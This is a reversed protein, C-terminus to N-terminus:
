NSVVRQDVGVVNVTFTTQTTAGNVWVLKWDPYPEVLFDVQNTSSAASAAVAIDPAVQVWTKGRDQSQFARLTGNHSNTLDLLVRHVRMRQLEHKRGFGRGDSVGATFTPATAFLVVTESTTPLATGTYSFPRISERTM